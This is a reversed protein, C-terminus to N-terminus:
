VRKMFFFEELGAELEYSGVIEYGLRLYFERGQWSFSDLRIISAGLGVARSEMEELLHRGIGKRRYEAEVFITSVYFISGVTMQGDAGAILRGAEEVGIQVAGESAKPLHM